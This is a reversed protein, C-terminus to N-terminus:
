ILLCYTIPTGDNLEGRVFIERTLKSPTLLSVLQGVVFAGIAVPAAVAVGFAAVALTGVAELGGETVIEGFLHSAEDNSPEANNIAVYFGNNAKPSVRVDADDRVIVASLM